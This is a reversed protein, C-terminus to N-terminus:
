TAATDRLLAKTLCTPGGQRNHSLEVGEYTLVEVGAAELLRITGTNEPLMLVRNPALTLVNTAQTAFEEDPIEILTWDLAHLLQMFSTSILPSYVVATREAVPSILSLLHLCEDPGHWHPLDVRIVDVGVPRVFTSLQDIGTSNTRYGIGAALIGSELWFVDGGELMGDGMIQGIVPVDLNQYLSQAYDVEVRRLEKGPHALVVGEDTLISTDYVFISDLRGAEDPEQRIVDVGEGELIACFADFEAMTRGHDVQHTYGYAKWDDPSVPPAPQQVIVRRLPAVMSQGGYGQERAVEATAETVARQDDRGLGFM